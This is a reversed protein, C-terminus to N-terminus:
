HRVFYGDPYIHRLLIIPVVTFKEIKKKKHRKNCYNHSTMIDFYFLNNDDHDNFNYVNSKLTLETKKKKKTNPTKARKM